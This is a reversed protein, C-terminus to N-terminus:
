LQHQWRSLIETLRVYEKSRTLTSAQQLEGTLTGLLLREIQEALWAARRASFAEQLRHIKAQLYGTGSSATASIASEGVTATAAGAVVDGAVHMAGQMLGQTALHAAAEGVPLGIGTVGLVITLMPRAAATAEDMRQVWQFLQPNEQQFTQLEAAVTQELLTQFPFDDHELELQQLLGSRSIGTLRQEIRERLLPQGLDSLWELKQYVKSVARLVAAWERERYSEWPPVAPGQAWDRVWRFPTLIASGVTDYAQHVAASWGQRHAAWWRRVEAILVSSPPVPWNDVEALQHATLVEAATRFEGSRIAVERLYEPLGARDDGVLQLAGRLTQFKIEEFRLRAFVDQLRVSNETVISGTATGAEGPQWHREQFELAISEAAKRDNPALYVYLPTLGTEKSFTSMWLPWYSEDDPLECQNFVVVAPKGETAAKRFFQKVAADNYKQQTLVAVLVDAAQRIADARMWNVPADSDVDPTDILLLNQPVTASTKWYLRHTEDDELAESADNWSRIEFTPFLEQLDHEDAFGEPLLCVPHKTGSALPSSASARFGALHNFVVSKGINTGGTVAVVLFPRQGLQPLLKRQLLDFWERGSLPALRLAAANAELLRLQSQMEPALDAFGALTATM